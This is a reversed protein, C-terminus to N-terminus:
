DKLEKLITSSQGISTSENIVSPESKGANQFDQFNKGLRTM